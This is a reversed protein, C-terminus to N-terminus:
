AAAQQRESPGLPRAAARAPSAGALWSGRVAVRERLRKPALTPASLAENAAARASPCPPACGASHVM